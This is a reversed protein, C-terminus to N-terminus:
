IIVECIQIGVFRQGRCLTVYRCFVSKSISLTNTYKTYKTVSKDFLVKVKKNM